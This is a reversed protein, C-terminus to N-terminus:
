TRRAMVLTQGIWYPIQAHDLGLASVLRGLVVAPWGVITRARFLIYGLELTQFHPRVAFPDFGTESLMRRMTTRTFYYLHVSILFVWKRGMLRAIWSGIDPYNVVLLGGPKLLRRCELLVAKADTTHELVDWLTIVDLSAPEITLDFITGPHVTLGYHEKAWQCLWRNLECAYVQWGRQAAVYPFSGGGAGVDLLRGRQPVVLAIADLCRRFTRERSAVQSVFTEDTGNSYGLVILDPKLRPEIYIFSCRRCRVLQDRLMEDGSSRFVEDPRIRGQDDRAPYIVTYDRAGCLNCPYSERFDAIAVLGTDQLRSMGQPVSTHM